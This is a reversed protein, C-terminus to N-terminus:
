DGHIVDDSNLEDEEEDDDVQVQREGDSDGSIPLEKPLLDDFESSSSKAGPSSNESEAYSFNSRQPRLSRREESLKEMRRASMPLRRAGFSALLDSLRPPSARVAFLKRRKPPPTQFSSLPDFDM